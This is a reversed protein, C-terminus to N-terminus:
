FASQMVGFWSVRAGCLRPLWKPPIVSVPRSPFLLSSSLSPRPPRSAGRACQFGAWATILALAAPGNRLRHPSWGQVHVQAVQLCCDRCLTPWILGLIVCMAGGVVELMAPAGVVAEERERGCAGRFLGWAGGSSAAYWAEADTEAEAPAAVPDFRVAASLGSPSGRRLLFRTSTVAVLM